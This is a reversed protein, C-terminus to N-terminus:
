NGDNEPLYGRVQFRERNENLCRLLAAEQQTTTDAIDFRVPFRGQVAPDPNGQDAVVSIGPLSGCAQKLGERNDQGADMEMQVVMVRQDGAFLYNSFAVFLMSALVLAAFVIVAVRNRRGADQWWPQQQTQQEWEPV